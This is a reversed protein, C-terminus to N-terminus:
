AARPLAANAQVLLSEFDQATLPKSFLYGQVTHCHRETLFQQQQPEEVGEAVVHLQLNRAMHLITEVIAANRPDAQLTQIFSKDIKVTDVPLLSLSSLSSYGTGFDDLSLHVGLRKLAQLVQMTRALDSMAVSETIELELLQPDLHTETLIKEIDEVLNAQQFQRLSLNVAVRLRHGKKYWLQAQQCATRLVWDGLPIILGTEEALPIFESPPIMGLEPHHWRILAEMGIIQGTVTDVQPQYYVVFEHNVFAKRLSTELQLTEQAQTALQPTFMEYCNRGRQKAKYLALDANKLLTEADTGAYPYASGGISFTVFIEHEGLRFPPQMAALIRNAVNHIDELSGVEPLLVVFEDGGSRSVTDGERVCWVLRSAVQRLLEDGNHHGLSDNIVKFRDLDLFLVGMERKYRTCQALSVYLRDQFLRRNPLGTLTDHYALHRINETALEREVVRGLQTAIHETLEMIKPDPTSIDGYFFELIAYCKGAVNVPFAFGSRFGYQVILCARPCKTCQSIDPVWFPKGTDLVQGPLGVGKELPSRQVSDRFDKYHEPNPLHFYWIPSSILQNSNQIDPLYVHGVPWDMYQCVLLLTKELASILSASENAAIAVNQLLEIEKQKQYLQRLGNEAIAEAEKRAQRERELRKQLREIHKQAESPTLTVM